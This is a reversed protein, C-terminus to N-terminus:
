AIPLYPFITLGCSINFQADVFADLTLTQTVADNAPLKPEGGSAMGSPIDFVYGGDNNRIGVNFRLTSNARIAKDADPQTYFLEFDVGANFHGPIMRQAGFTGQQKQAKINQNTTLKWSMVDTAIVFEAGNTVNSPDTLRPPRIAEGLASNMGAQALPLFAASAGTDRTTSPNTMDTGVFSVTAVILSTLPANVELMSAMSGRGYKYDTASAVDAGPLSLELSYSPEQYDADSFGVNRLWRGFYLDISKGTAVDAAGITWSRCQLTLLHAAVVAVQALGRYATTAFANASGITGGVWIFAGPFLGMTTFDCTTSTLNGNVDMQIDAAVNARFGCVEATALYGTVTEATLGGTILISTSTSSAAVAKLGNNLPQKFGRGFMLTGQQVAGLAAVTYATSTVATPTFFSLGTGGPHKTKALFIGEGFIDLLDKSLHQTIKPASDLDVSEGKANQRANSLPSIAVKKINPFFGAIGDPDPQLYRQGSTPAVGLSPELAAIISISEAKVLSM